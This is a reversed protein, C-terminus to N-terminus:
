DEFRVGQPWFAGPIGTIKALGSVNDQAWFGDYLTQYPIWICEELMIEWAGAIDAEADESSKGTAAQVLEEVGDPVAHSPNLTGQATARQQLTMLPHPENIPIVQIPYRASTFATFM